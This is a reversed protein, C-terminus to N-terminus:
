YKLKSVMPRAMRWCFAPKLIGNDMPKAKITVSCPSLQQWSSKFAGSSLLSYFCSPVSLRAAKLSILMSALFPLQKILVPRCLFQLSPKKWNVTNDQKVGSQCQCSNLEVDHHKAALRHSQSVRNITVNTWKGVNEIPEEGSSRSIGAFSKPCM